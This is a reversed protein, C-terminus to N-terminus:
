QHNYFAKAEILKREIIPALKLPNLHPDGPRSAFNMDLLGDPGVTDPTLDLFYFNSQSCLSKMKLNFLNVVNTRTRKNASVFKRPHKLRTSYPPQQYSQIPPLTVSSIIPKDSFIRIFSIYNDTAQNIFPTIKMGKLWVLSNCDVEGFCFLQLQDVAEILFDSASERAGTRSQDSSLGYATAGPILLTSAAFPEYMKVHSDGLAIM